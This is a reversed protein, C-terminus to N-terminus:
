PRSVLGREVAIRAAHARTGVGLKGFINSVHRIATKESIVLQAAVQRNSLGEALLRLVELERATLGHPTRATDRPGVLSFVPEPRGALVVEGTPEAILQDEVAGRAREEILITEDGAADFLAHARTVVPGVPGYDFRQEFGMTGLTAYGLALGARFGMHRGARRWVVALGGVLERLTLALHAAALAPRHTPLPDNLYVMVRDGAFSGVTTNHAHVLRGTADHLERLIAIVEEPAAHAEFEVFGTLGVVLVAIEARHSQLVSEDGRVIRQAVQPPLFPLLRGLREIQGVQEAVRAELDDNLAALATAQSSITDHADKLRLLSRVRALLEARVIPKQLFDDAGADLAEIKLDADGATIMLVPLGVLRPDARIARAVAIGDMEPMVLDLVVLDFPADGLMALAEAGSYAGVVTHGEPALMAELVAVNTRVDDVALIRASRGTM